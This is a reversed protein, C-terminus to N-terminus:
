IKWVDVWIFLSTWLKTLGHNRQYRNKLNPLSLRVIIIYDLWRLAPVENIWNKITSIALSLHLLYIHDVHEYFMTSITFSKNITIQKSRNIICLYIPHSFLWTLLILHDFDYLWGLFSTCSLQILGMDNHRLIQFNRSRERPKLHARHLTKTCM